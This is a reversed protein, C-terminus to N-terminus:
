RLLIPRMRPLYVADVLGVTLWTTLAVLGTRMNVGGQEAVPRQGPRLPWTNDPSRPKSGGKINKM